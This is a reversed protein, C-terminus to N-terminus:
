SGLKVSASAETLDNYEAYEVSGGVHKPEYPCHRCMSGCCMNRKKLFFTTFVRYGTEPDLYYTAGLKSAFVNIDDPNKFLVGM